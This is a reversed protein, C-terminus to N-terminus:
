INVTFPMSNEERGQQRHGTSPATILIFVSCQTPTHDRPRAAADHDMRKSGPVLANKKGMIGKSATSVAAAPAAVRMM